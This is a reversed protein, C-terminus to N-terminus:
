LRNTSLSMLEAATDCLSSIPAYCEEYVYIVIILMGLFPNGFAQCPHSQSSSTSLSLVWSSCGAPLGLFAHEFVPHSLLQMVPHHINVPMHSLFM